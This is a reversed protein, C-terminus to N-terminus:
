GRRKAAASTGSESAAGAKRKRFMPQPGPVNSPSAGDPTLVYEEKKVISPDADEEAKAASSAILDWAAQQRAQIEEPTDEIEQAVVAKFGGKSSGLTRAHGQDPPALTKAQLIAKSIPDTSTSARPVKVKIDLNYPMDEEDPLSKERLYSFSIRRRDPDRERREQAAAEAEAEADGEAPTAGSGGAAPTIYSWEGMRGENLREQKEITAKVVDPDIFGLSEATSYSAMSGRFPQPPAPKPKSPDSASAASSSSTSATASIGM